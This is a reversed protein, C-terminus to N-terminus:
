ERFHDYGAPAVIERGDDLLQVGAGDGRHVSGIETLAVGFTREFDRVDLAVPSAVLLEYEEGSSLADDIKAGKIVPVGERRLRVTMGSASALHRADAVIGDSIDIGAHAGREQLWRAERLRPVPHAFRARHLALPTRGAQLERLAVLPGGLAGTVYVRDGDRAASRLLPRAASGLVSLTVSLQAGRTVDGGLIRAGAASACQGVGEALEEAEPVDDGALTLALFLGMPTAAMAALDSLAAATARYAIERHTLWERRFHVNEVSTDVSVVLREGDPATMVAADDGIGEALDGWRSLMRRVVDFEGGPGLSTHRPRRPSTSM